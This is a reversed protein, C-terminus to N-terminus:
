ATQSFDFSTRVDELLWAHEDASVLDIMSRDGYATAKKRFIGPLREPQLRRSLVDATQALTVAKEQRAAPIGSAVWQGIASPTVGFMQALERNSLRFVARVQDLLPARHSQEARYTTRFREVLGSRWVHRHDLLLDSSVDVTCAGLFQSRLRDVMFLALADGIGAPTETYASFPAEEAAEGLQEWALFVPLKLGRQVCDEPLSGWLTEAAEHWLIAYGRVAQPDCRRVLDLNVDAFLGAVRVFAGLQRPDPVELLDCAETAKRHGGETV